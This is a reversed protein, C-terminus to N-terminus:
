IALNTQYREAFKVNADDVTDVIPGEGFSGNIARISISLQAKDILVAHRPGPKGGKKLGRLNGQTRYEKLKKASPKILENFDARSIQREHRQKTLTEHESRVKGIDREGDALIIDCGKVAAKLLNVEMHKLVAERTKFDYAAKYGADPNKAKLMKAKLSDVETVLAEFDSRDKAPVFKRIQVRIRENM